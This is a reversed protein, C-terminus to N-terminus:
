ASLASRQHGQDKITGAQPQEFAGVQAHLIDVETPILEDDAAPFPVLIPHRHARRGHLCLQGPVDLAHFLLVFVIKPVARPPHLQRRSERALVRVGAALPGPLPHEGGGAHVHLAGGALVPAVVQVFGDELAGHPLSELPRGDRLASRAVSEAVRERGVQQLVAVVDSGDLLQETV